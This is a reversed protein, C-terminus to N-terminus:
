KVHINAATHKNPTNGACAADTPKVTLTPDAFASWPDLPLKRSTMRVFLEADTALIAPNL